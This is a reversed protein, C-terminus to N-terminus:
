PVTPLKYNRALSKIALPRTKPVNGFAAITRHQLPSLDRLSKRRLCFPDDSRHRPTAHEVM